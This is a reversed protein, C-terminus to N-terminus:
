RFTFLHRRPGEFHGHENLSVLTLGSRGSIIKTIAGNAMFRNFVWFLGAQDGVVRAALAAIVGGSTFVLANQGPGLEGVVTDLAGNVRAAFEQWSEASRGDGPGAAVWAQLARDLVRQYARQDTTQPEEPAYAFVDAFDYENWRADQDPTFGAAVATDRQRAMSGSRVVAFEVERRRLEEGVVVSQEKGLPSLKDYDAAGFSAQGHRILYIAGM